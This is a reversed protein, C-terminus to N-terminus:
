LEMSWGDGIIHHMSLFFVYEQEKLKLLSARILPAQELDFIEHNREEIYKAIAEQQNETFSFDEISIKFDLQESPIIYQRIDGQNDAKFYTRLIEHRQLLLKFSEEFKNIEINGKLTVAGPMNYALSGGELQSMIWLRRQSDTLPYSESEPAKPIAIYESEQLEKSLKEITPNAFFLKIAITKGFQKHIRNVVQAVSLSHGGLEFFNDTVGIREIGLVEQWIAALKQETENRPAVYQNRILDEGEVGPLAK